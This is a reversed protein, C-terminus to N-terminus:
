IGHRGISGGNGGLENGVGELRGDGGVLSVTEDLCDIVIDRVEL